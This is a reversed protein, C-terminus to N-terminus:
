EDYKVEIKYYGAKTDDLQRSLTTMASSIAGGWFAARNSESNDRLIKYPVYVANEKSSRDPIGAKSITFAGIENVSDPQAIFKIYPIELSQDIGQTHTFIIEEVVYTGPKVCYNFTEGPELVIYVPSITTDQVYRLNIRASLSKEKFAKPMKGYICNKNSDVIATIESFPYFVTDISSFIGSKNEVFDVGDEKMQFSIAKKLYGNKLVMAPYFTNWVPNENLSGTIVTKCDPDDERDIFMNSSCGTALLAM